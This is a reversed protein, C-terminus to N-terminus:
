MVREVGTHGRVRGRYSGSCGQIGWQVGTHGVGDRCSGGSGVGAHSVVSRYSGGVSAHSVGAWVQMVWGVGKHGMGVRCSEGWGM